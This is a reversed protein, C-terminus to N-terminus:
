GMFAMTLLVLIGIIMAFAYHYIYGSQLTRIVSAFWGVLRATGNVLVGDIVAVDGGKWLGGGILRAGGAFFWDNFEDFGYKRELITYLVGAKARIVAPLDPRVLYLYFATAIGAVALWFPVTVLAHGMMGLVGHFDKGLEGLVDHAPAVVIANGFYGGFLVPGIFWGACISPIALLVLPVTVV